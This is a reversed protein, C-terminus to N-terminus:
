GAYDDGEDCDLFEEPPQRVLKLAEHWLLSDRSIYFGDAIFADIEALAAKPIKITVETMEMKLYDQSVVLSAVDFPDPAIM